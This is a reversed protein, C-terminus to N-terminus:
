LKYYEKLITIVMNSFSRNEKEAQDKIKKKLDDPLRLTDPSPKKPVEKKAKSM